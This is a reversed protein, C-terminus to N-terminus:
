MLKVLDQNEMTRGKKGQLWPYYVSVKSVSDRPLEDLLLCIRLGTGLSVSNTPRPHAKISINCCAGPSVPTGHPARLVISQSTDYQWPM